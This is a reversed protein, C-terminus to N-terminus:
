IFINEVISIHRGLASDDILVAEFSCETTLPLHNESLYEEAAEYIKKKKASGISLSADGFCGQKRYKVEIFVIVVGKTMILDIEGHSVKGRWNRYILNYGKDILYKLAISEGEDGTEKASM